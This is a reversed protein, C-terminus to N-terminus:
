SGALAPTADDSAAPALGFARAVLEYSRKRAEHDHTITVVIVEGAGYDRALREVEDRVREPNGLIMRRDRPPTAPDDGQARLMKEAKEPSPFAIPRGSRLAKMAVRHSLALHHAEEDTDAALIWAAVAMQAGELRRGPEFNSAYHQAYAVGGPNIFDAFAYPLGLEAAWIASQMSSGLLWPEPREPLGPLAKALRAFAHDAPLRDELYGLLEDLQQPFDDHALPSTRDRQLAYQTLPDTGSARGIGLDIRGPFLGALLSFQEAVKLPSYHPLMVGGSGVRLRPSTVSAIAPILSEPAPGALSLGGHHESVWYRHYGLADAHRALDLTNALAQAGTTGEPIPTQDLVSLRM